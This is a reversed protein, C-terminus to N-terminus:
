HTAIRYGDNKLSSEDVHMTKSVTDLTVYRSLELLRDGILGRIMEEMAKNRDNEHEKSARGKGETITPACLEDMGMFVDESKIDDTESFFRKKEKDYELSPKGRMRKFVYAPNKIGYQESLVAYLEKKGKENYIEALGALENDQIKTM